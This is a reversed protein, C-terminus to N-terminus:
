KKLVRLAHRIQEGTDESAERAEAAAGEAESRRYGLALLADILEDEPEKAAPRGAASAAAARQTLAEAAMKDKLELIIREALRTGVGTARSLVRADQGVIAGLVSEAGVQGLLALAVKPGCGKVELLMDFLRRQLPELFGYLTLSDERVIQRTLLVVASSPALQLLVSDPVTVEYGVGGVDVLAVNGSTEVLEGRLRGIM